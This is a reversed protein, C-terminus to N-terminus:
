SKGGMRISVFCREGASRAIVLHDLLPIQMLRSCEILRDSLEKDQRSPKLNGSPHNHAVIISHAGWRVAEKFVERPHLTASDLMGRAIVLPRCLPHKASDLPLVMFNEQEEWGRIARLFLEAAMEANNICLNRVDVEDGEFGRRALEFAAVLELIRAQGLGLIKRGPNQENYSRIKEVLTRWDCRVLGAVNGFCALLRRALEFVDCGATGTKLLVALLAESSVEDARGANLMQERPLLERKGNQASKTM